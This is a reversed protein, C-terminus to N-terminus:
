NEPTKEVDTKEMCHLNEIEIAAVSSPEAHVVSRVALAIELDDATLEHEEIVKKIVKIVEGPNPPTPLTIKKQANQLETLEELLHSLLDKKM